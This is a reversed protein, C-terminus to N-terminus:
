KDQVKAQKFGQARLRCSDCVNCPKSMGKYCSWTLNFPVKLKRGLLVIQKKSLKLLPAAIKFPSASVGQRTGQNLTKEMSKLFVPRCDPYGSYDISNAGIFITDAKYVEAYSGAISLFIINRSPVYTAPINRGIKKHVPIKQSKDILSSGKEPLLVNIVIYPVKCKVAIKKACSIEKKHRQKYNFILATCDYGKDLAWYLTTTSDLGGSFLVIAKKKTFKM